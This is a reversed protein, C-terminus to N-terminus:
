SKLAAVVKNVVSDHLAMSAQNRAVQELSLGPRQLARQAKMRAQRVSQLVEGAEKKTLPINLHKPEHLM